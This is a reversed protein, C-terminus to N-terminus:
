SLNKCRVSDRGCISKRIAYRGSRVAVDPEGFKVIALDPADCRRSSEGLERNRRTRRIWNCDFGARVAPNPERFHAGFGTDSLDAVDRNVALLDTIEEAIAQM